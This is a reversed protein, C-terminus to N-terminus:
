WPSVRSRCKQLLESRGCQPAVQVINYIPLDTNDIDEGETEVATALGLVPDGSMSVGWESRAGDKFATEPPEKLELSPCFFRAKVRTLLAVLTFVGVTM